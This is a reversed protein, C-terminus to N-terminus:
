GYSLIALGWVVAQSESSRLRKVALLPLLPSLLPLANCAAITLRRFSESM